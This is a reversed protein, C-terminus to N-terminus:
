GTAQWPPPHSSWPVPIPYHHNNRYPGPQNRGTPPSGDVTATAAASPKWTIRRHKRRLWAIVQRWAIAALYRFTKSSVGPRFYACWGRLVPNSGTSCSQCRSISARERCTGKVKRCIARLRSRAPYTYVYQRAEGDGRQQVEVAVATIDLGPQRHQRGPETVDVRLRGVPVQLRDGLQEGQGGAPELGGRGPLRSM